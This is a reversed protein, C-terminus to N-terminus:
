FSYKFRDLIVQNSPILNIQNLMKSYKGLCLTFMEALSMKRMYGIAADGYKKLHYTGGIGYTIKIVIQM